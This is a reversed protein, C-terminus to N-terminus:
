KCILDFWQHKMGLIDIKCIFRQLIEKKFYSIESSVIPKNSKIIILNNQFKVSILFPTIDINKKELFLEKIIHFVMASFVSQIKWSKTIASLLLNNLKIWEM